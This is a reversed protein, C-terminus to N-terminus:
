SPCLTSLSFSSDPVPGLLAPSCPPSFPYHTKSTFLTLLFIIPCPTGAILLWVLYLCISCVVTFVWTVLFPHSPFFIQTANSWYKSLLSWWALRQSAYVLHIHGSGSDWTCVRPSLSSYCFNSCSMIAEIPSAADLGARPLWLLRRLLFTMISVLVVLILSCFWDSSPIPLVNWIGLIAYVLASTHRTWQHPAM